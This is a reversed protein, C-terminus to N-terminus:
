WVLVYQLFSNSPKQGSLSCISIVTCHVIKLLKTWQFYCLIKTDSSITSICYFFIFVCDLRLLVGGIYLGYLTMDLSLWGIPSQVQDKKEKLTGSCRLRCYNWVVTDWIFRVSLWSWYTPMPLQAISQVQNQFAGQVLVKREGRKVSIFFIDTNLFYSGPSGVQRSYTFFM